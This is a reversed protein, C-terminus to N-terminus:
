VSQFCFNEDVVIVPLSEDIVSYDGEFDNLDRSFLKKLYRPKKMEKVIQKFHVTRGVFEKPFDIIEKDFRYVKNMDLNMSISIRYSYRRYILLCILPDSASLILELVIELQNTFFNESIPKLKDDSISFFSIPETSEKIMKAAVLYNWRLHLKLLIDRRDNPTLINSNILAPISDFDCISSSYAFNLDDKMHPRDPFVSLTNRTLAHCEDLKKGFREQLKECAIKKADSFYSIDKCKEILKKKSVISFYRKLISPSYHHYTQEDFKQIIREVTYEDILLENIADIYSDHMGNYPSWANIDTINFFIKVKERSPKEFFFKINEPYNKDNWFSNRGRNQLREVFLNYSDPLNHVKLLHPFDLVMKGYTLPVKADVGYVAENIFAILYFYVIKPITRFNLDEFYFNIILAQLEDHITKSSLKKSKPFNLDLVKLFVANLLPEDFVFHPNFAALRNAVIENETLNTSRIAHSGDAGESFALEYQVHDESFPHTTYVISKETIASFKKVLPKKHLHFRKLNVLLLNRLHKDVERSIRSTGSTRSSLLGFFTLLFVCKLNMFLFLLM